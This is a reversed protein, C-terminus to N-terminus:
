SIVQILKELFLPAQRDELDWGSRVEVRVGEPHDLDFDFSYGNGMTKMRNLQDFRREYGTLDDDGQFVLFYEHHQVVGNAVAAVLDWEGESALLRLRSGKYAERLNNTM